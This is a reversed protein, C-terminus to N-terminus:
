VPGDDELAEFACPWYCGYISDTYDVWVPDGPQPVRAM